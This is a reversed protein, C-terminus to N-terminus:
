RGPVEPPWGLTTVCQQCAISLGILVRAAQSAAHRADSIQLIIRSAAAEAIPIAEAAPLANLAEIQSLLADSIRQAESSLGTEKTRDTM